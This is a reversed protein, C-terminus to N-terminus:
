QTLDGLLFTGSEDPPQSPETCNGRQTGGALLFSALRAVGRIEGKRASFASLVGFEGTM